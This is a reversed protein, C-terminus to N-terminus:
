KLLELNKTPPDQIPQRTFPNLPISSIYAPVLSSLSPPMSGKDIYYMKLALEVQILNNIRENDCEDSLLTGWSHPVGYYILKGAGNETLSLNYKKLQQHVADEEDDENKFECRAGVASVVRSYGNVYLNKTQIPKYAYHNVFTGLKHKASAIEQEFERSIQNTQLVYETRLTNKLAEANDGNNKLINIVTKLTTTSPNGLMLIQDITKSGSQEIARGVLYSIVLNTPARLIAHGTKNIKVAEQLAEDAKGQRVLSLAKIAQLRAVQRWIGMPPFSPLNGQLQTPDAIAPIQVVNKQSASDFLALAAANDSLVKDVLEQDWAVPKSFDTYPYSSTPENVMDATIKNLDFFGNEEDPISVKNLRLLSDDAPVADNPHLTFLITPLLYDRVIVIVFGLVYLGVPIAVLGILVKKWWKMKKKLQPAIAVPQQAEVSPAVEAKKIDDAM